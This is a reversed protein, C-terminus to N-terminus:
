NVVVVRVSWNEAVIVVIRAVKVDMESTSSNMQVIVSTVIVAIVPMTMVVAM